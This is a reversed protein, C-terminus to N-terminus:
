SHKIQEYKLITCKRNQGIVYSWYPLFMLPWEQENSCGERTWLEKLGPARNDVSCWGKYWFSWLELEQWTPQKMHKPETEHVSTCEVTPSIHLFCEPFHCCYHCFAQWVESFQGGPQPQVTHVQLSWLSLWSRTQPGPLWGGNGWTMAKGHTYTWQNM